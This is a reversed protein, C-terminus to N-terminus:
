RAAERATYLRPQTPHWYHAEGERNLKCTLTKSAQGWPSRCNSAQRRNSRVLKKLADQSPKDLKVDSGPKTLREYTESLLEGPKRAHHCDQVVDTPELAVHNLVKRGGSTPVTAM